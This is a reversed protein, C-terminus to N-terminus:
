PRTLLGSAASTSSRAPRVQAVTRTFTFFALVHTVSSAPAPALVVFQSSIWVIGIGVTVPVQITLYMARSSHEDLLTLLGFGVIMFAWGVFSQPRFRDSMNVSLGTLIAATPVITALPLVDVDAALSSAGQAAQLYM